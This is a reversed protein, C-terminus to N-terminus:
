HPIFFILWVIILVPLLIVASYKFVYGLFSPMQIGSSEAISKVMFNPANGIYTMAGFFVAGVSIAVLFANFAPVGILFALKLEAEDIVGKGKIVDAEHYQIVTKVADNVQPDPIVPLFAALPRSTDAEYNAYTVKLAEQAEAVQEPKIEGLRAQLFTLYTPANDLVSSLAGTAFYFQGPTRLPMKEANADLYELAPVMTSFIALFIIAVERIPAFKFENAQHVAKKTLKLSVLAAAVMLVERSTLLDLINKADFVSERFVALIVVLILLLNVMGNVRVAAGTDNEGWDHREERAHDRKDFVYFIALLILVAVAWPQWCHELVWWFPVGKLYGLFLPPDGVPTLCGGVNAILFIFFIIHYPKIHKRNIRIYPRILLMAAGTTGFINAVIAGTLLLSVNITPTAKRSVHIVIGGSVVFLAFLLAIFSVYERMEHTWPHLDHRVLLYYGLGVLFFAGAVLPYKHEWFHSFFLPALAICGLFLAFPLVWYIPVDAQHEGGSTQEATIGPATGPATGPAAPAILQGRGDADTADTTQAHVVTVPSMVMLLMTAALMFFRFPRMLSIPHTM